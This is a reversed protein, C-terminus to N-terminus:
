TVGDLWKKVTKTHPHADGYCERFISYAQQFCAKARESNGLAYWAVGINNLRTAVDPHRDGYVEKGIALAQEYYEIAQRADGMDDYIWGLESMFRGYIDDQMPQSVHSRINNGLALAETYALAHRLYPLLRGGGEEIAIANLGANLAHAILEAGAAPAYERSLLAQYYSVAAHHVQRSAEEGLEGVIDERL